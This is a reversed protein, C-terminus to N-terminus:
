RKSKFGRRLYRKSPKQKQTLLRKLRTALEDYISPLEWGTHTYNIVEKPTKITVDVEYRRREKGEKSKYTKIISRAEEVEPFGRKLREVVNLFKSKAVESEFPDDPLGVIYAPIEPKAEPEAILRIFDRPTVIGEAMELVTILSYTKGLRLMERLVNSAEADAPSLLPPTDMLAKVQFSLTAQGELGLSERGVRERPILRYVIQSSTLVGTVSRDETVPLHDIRHEVMLNRAKAAPDEGRIKILSGSTLSKVKFNLNGLRALANMIGKATVAGTLEGGEVIPLARLRYDIMIRAARGLSTEPSLRAPYNMITSTKTNAPNSVKLIDRITVMGIKGDEVIFAEYTDLDRLVGITKSVPYDGPVIIPSTRLREVRMGKITEM